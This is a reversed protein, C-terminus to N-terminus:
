CGICPLLLSSVNTQKFTLLISRPKLESQNLLFDIDFNDEYNSEVIIDNGTKNTNAVRENKVFYNYIFKSNLEKVDPLIYSTFAESISSNSLYSNDFLNNEEVNTDPTETAQYTQFNRM